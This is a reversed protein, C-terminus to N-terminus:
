LTILVLTGALNGRLLTTRLVSGALSMLKLLLKQQRLLAPRQRRLRINVGEAM